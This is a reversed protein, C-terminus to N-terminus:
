LDHEQLRTLLYKKANRNAKSYYETKMGLDRRTREIMIRYILASTIDDQTEEYITVSFHMKKPKIHAKKQRLYDTRAQDFSRKPPFWMLKIDKPIVGKNQLKVAEKRINHKGYLHIENLGPWYCDVSFKRVGPTYGPLNYSVTGAQWRTEGYGYSLHEVVREIYDSPGFDPFITATIFAANVMKKIVLIDAKAGDSRAYVTAYYALLAKADKEREGDDLVQEMVRVQNGGTTGSVCSRGILFCTLGMLAVLM